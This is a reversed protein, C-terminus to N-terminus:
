KVDLGGFARDLEEGENRPVMSPMSTGQDASSSDLLSEGKAEPSMASRSPQLLKEDRDLWGPAVRRKEALERQQISEEWLKIADESEQRNKKLHHELSQCAALIEGPHAAHEGSSSVVYRAKADPNIPDVTASPPLTSPVSKYTYPLTISTPLNIFPSVTLPVQALLPHPRNSDYMTATCHQIPAALHIHFHWLLKSANRAGHPSIDAGLKPKWQELFGTTGGLILTMGGWGFGLRAYGAILPGVFQGIAIAMSCFAYGTGMGSRKSSDVGHTVEIERVADSVEAMVQAQSTTMFLGVGIVLAIFGIQHSTTPGDIIRLAVLPFFALILEVAITRRRKWDRGYRSLPISLFSPLSIGLFVLGAKTSSWKYTEKTFLPLTTEFAALISSITIQTLIATIFRVDVFNRLSLSAEASDKPRLLPAEEGILPPSKEAQDKEVMMTRLVIDCILMFAPFAFAGHVGFHDFSYRKHAFNWCTVLKHSMCFVGLVPGSIMGWTYSTSVFAMYDGRKEPLATDAVIAFSLVGVVAGSFGQCIRAIVLLAPSHGFLFVSTSLAIAVYGLILPSKRSQIRDSILGVLPSAVLLAAGYAALLISTWKQVEDSSTIRNQMLLFPLIPIVMGYVFNDTFTSLCMAVLVFAGSARLERIRGM